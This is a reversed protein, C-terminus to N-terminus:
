APGETISIRELDYDKLRKHISSWYWPLPAVIKLPEQSIPHNMQLSAAHLALPRFRLDLEETGGILSQAGYEVDGLIPWGRKSLQMRIQHRRGTGLQIALLSLGEFSDLLQYRLSCHQPGKTSRDASPPAELLDELLAAAPSPQGEVVALYIKDIQRNQFVEGLRGSVKSNRAFLAVGSVPRDLRHVVGLYVEGSKAKEERLLDKVQDVLPSPWGKTYGHFLQGAAKNVAIMARDSYLIDLTPQAGLNLFQKDEGM